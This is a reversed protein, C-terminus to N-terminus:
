GFVKFKTLYVGSRTANEIRKGMNSYGSSVSDGTNSINCGLSSSLILSNILRWIPGKEMTIERFSNSSCKWNQFDLLCVEEVPIQERQM